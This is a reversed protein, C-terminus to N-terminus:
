LDAGFRSSVAMAILGCVILIICFIGFCKCCSCSECCCCCKKESEPGFSTFWSSSSAQNQGLSWHRAVFDVLITESVEGRQQKDMVIAGMIAEVADSLMGETCEYVGKGKIIYENLKLKRAIPLLSENRIHSVTEDHLEGVSWRRNKDRCLLLSIAYKLAADGVFELTKFNQKAADQHREHIASECTLAQRLLSSDHFTYGISQQLEALKADM